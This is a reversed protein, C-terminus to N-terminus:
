KDPNVDIIVYESKTGTKFLIEWCSIGSTVIFDTNNRKEHGYSKDNAGLWVGVYALPFLQGGHTHGSVVLDAKSKAQADYDNPEHDLVIIYKDEDADKLLEDMKLRDKVQTDKRGVILLEGVSEREDELVHVGNKKLENVLEDFSFERNNYYGEDHNGVSYYVGYKCDISGLAKCARIMDDKKSGDDVYDGPILVIDPNQKKITEIHEAFGEGGFTTSMHSDAFLAIRVSESLKASDLTYNVQWVHHCLYFGIALYIFCTVPALYGQWYIKFERGSILMVLKMIGGYLLFFLMMHLFIIISNVLSFILSFLVIFLIILGLPILIKKLRSDGALKIVFSYKGVAGTMYAMGLGTAILVAALIGVWLIM